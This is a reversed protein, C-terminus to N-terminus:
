ATVTAHIDLEQIAGQARAFVKITKLRRVARDATVTDAVKPVLYTISDPDLFGADAAEKTAARVASELKSIGKDTFAIKGDANALADICLNQLRSEYWDRDRILDLYGGDSNTGQQTLSLTGFATFYNCAKAELNTIETASLDVTDVNQLARFAFIISGPAFPFVAGMVAAGVHQDSNPHFFLGTRTRNATACTSAVDSSGSGTVGGDATGQILLKKNSEAWSSAAAIEAAGQTTLTLGYWGNSAAKIDTLDQEIGASGGADASKNELDLLARDLVKVAFNQGPTTAVVTIKTTGDTADVGTLAQIPVTLATCISAVTASSGSNISCRTVTGSPLTVDVAYVKNDHAVPTLEISITPANLRRGIAIQEPQPDQALAAAAAKYGQDASTFSDTVMGDLDDYYRIRESFKSNVDAIMMVGFGAQKVSSTLLSVTVHVINSLDAM